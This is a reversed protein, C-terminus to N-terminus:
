PFVQTTLAGVPVASETSLNNLIHNLNVDYDAIHVNVMETGAPKPAGPAKFFLNVTDQSGGKANVAAITPATLSTVFPGSVSTGVTAGNRGLVRLRVNTLNLNGSNAVRVQFASVENVNVAGPTGPPQVVRDVISLKISLLPYDIVGKGFDDFYPM